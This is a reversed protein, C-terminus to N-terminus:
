YEEHSAGADKGNTVRSLPEYNSYDSLLEDNRYHKAKGNLVFIKTRSLRSWPIVM